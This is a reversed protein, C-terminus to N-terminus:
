AAAKRRRWRRSRPKDMKDPTRPPDLLTWPAPGFAGCSCREVYNGKLMARTQVRHPQGPRHPEVDVWDIGGLHEVYEAGRDYSRIWRTAADPRRMDMWRNLWTDVENKWRDDLPQGLTVAHRAESLLLAADLIDRTM